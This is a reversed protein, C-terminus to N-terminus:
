SSLQQSGGHHHYRWTETYQSQRNDLRVNVTEPSLKFGITFILRKHNHLFIIYIFPTEFLPFLPTEEKICGIARLSLFFLTDFANFEM